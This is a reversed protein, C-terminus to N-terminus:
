RLLRDKTLEIPLLECYNKKGFWKYRNRAVWNYVGDRIFKPVIMFIYLIPWLGKFLTLSTLVATSRKKLKGQHLLYFTNNLKPDVDFDKLLDKAINSDLPAFFLPHYTRRKLAFQIFTNCLMCDGDFFIITKHDAMHLTVVLIM